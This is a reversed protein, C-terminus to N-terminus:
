KVKFSLFVSAVGLILLGLMFAWEALSELQTGARAGYHVGVMTASTPLIHSTLIVRTGSPYESHIKYAM